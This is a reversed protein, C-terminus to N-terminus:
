GIGRLWDEAARVGKPTLIATPLRYSGDRDFVGGCVWCRWRRSICIEIAGTRLEEYRGWRHGILRCLWSM